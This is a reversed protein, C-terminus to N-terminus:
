PRREGGNRKQRVAMTADAKEKRDRKGGERKKLFDGQQVLPNTNKNKESRTESKEELQTLPSSGRRGGGVLLIKRVAGEKKRAKRTQCGHNAYQMHNKKVDTEAVGIWQSHGGIKEGQFRRGGRLCHEGRKPSEGESQSAPSLFLVWKKKNEGGGTRKSGCNRKWGGLNSKHGSRLGYGKRLEGGIEM